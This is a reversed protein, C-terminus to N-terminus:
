LASARLVVAEIHARMAEDHRMDPLEACILDVFARVKPELQERSRERDVREIQAAFRGDFWIRFFWVFAYFFRTFFPMVGM